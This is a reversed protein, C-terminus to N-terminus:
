WRLDCACARRSRARGRGRPRDGRAARDPAAPHRQVACRGGPVRSRRRDSGRASACAACPRRAARAQRCREVQRDIGRFADRVPLAVFALCLVVALAPLVRGPLAALLAAGGATGLLGLVTLMRGLDDNTVAGRGVQVILLALLALAFAAAPEFPRRTLSVALGALALLLLPWGLTPDVRHALTSALEGFSIHPPHFRADYRDLVHQSWLTDGTLIRDLGLWLVPPVIM